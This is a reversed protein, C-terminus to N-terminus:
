QVGYFSVPVINHHIEGINLFHANRDPIEDIVILNVPTKRWDTAYNGLSKGCNQPVLLILIKDPATLKTQM